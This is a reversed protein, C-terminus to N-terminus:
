AHGSREEIGRAPAQISQLVDSRGSAEPAAKVLSIILRRARCEPDANITRVIHHGVIYPNNSFNFGASVDNRGLLRREIGDASGLLPASEFQSLQAGTFGSAQSLYGRGTAKLAPASPM